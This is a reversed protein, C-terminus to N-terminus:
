DTKYDEYESMDQCLIYSLILVMLDLEYNSTNIDM